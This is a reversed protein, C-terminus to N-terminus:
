GGPAIFGSCLVHMLYILDADLLQKDARFRQSPYQKALWQCASRLKSATSCSHGAKLLAESEVRLIRGLDVGLQLSAAHMIQLLQGSLLAGPKPAPSAAPARAAAAKSSSSHRSSVSSSVVGDALLSAHPTCGKRRNYGVKLSCCHRQVAHSCNLAAQLVALCCRCRQNPGACDCV